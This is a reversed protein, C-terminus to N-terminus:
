KSARLANNFAGFDVIIKRQVPVLIGDNYEVMDVSEQVFYDKASGIINCKGDVCFMNEFQVDESINSVSVDEGVSPNLVVDFAKFMIQDGSYMLGDRGKQMNALARFSTGFAIGEEIVNLLERGKKSKQLVKARGYVIGTQTDMDLSDTLLARESLLPMTRQPIPHDLEGISKKKDIFTTCYLDVGNSLYQKPYVRGNGNPTDAKVFIGEIFIDKSTSNVYVDTGFVGVTEQIFFLKNNMINNNKHYKFFTSM